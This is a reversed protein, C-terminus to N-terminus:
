YNCLMMRRRLFISQIQFFIIEKEKKQCFFTMNRLISRENMHDFRKSNTLPFIISQSSNSRRKFSLQQQPSTKPIIVEKKTKLSPFHAIQTNKSMNMGKLFKQCSRLKELKKLIPTKKLFLVNELFFILNIFM